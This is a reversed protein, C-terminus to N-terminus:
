EPAGEGGAGVALLLGSDLVLASALLISWAAGLMSFPATAQTVQLRRQGSGESGRGGPLALM